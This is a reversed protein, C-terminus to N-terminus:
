RNIASNIRQVENEFLDRDGKSRNRVRTRYNYITTLSYRLFQAIKNSDTIGLRILAFIRLETNLTESKSILIQQDDKLLTNFDKIFDPHLTLFAKDFNVYLEKRENSAMDNSKLLKILADRNSKRAESLIKIQYNELNEIYNSCLQLFLALYKEQLINSNNLHDNVQKTELNSAQLEKNLQKLKSNIDTVTSNIKILGSKQRYIIFMSISLAISLTIVIWIFILQNNDRKRIFEKYAKSIVPLMRSIEVARLQANSDIADEMAVDIYRSSKEIEDSDYLVIALERLAIYEKVGNSIDSYASLALFVKHKERDKAEKYFLSLTYALYATERDTASYKSLEKLILEKAKNSRSELYLKEGSSIIHNINNEGTVEILSDRYSNQVRNKTSLTEGGNYAEKYRHLSGMNGYYSSLQQDTTLQPRLRIALDEAEKYRGKLIYGNLLQLNANVLQQPKDLITLIDVQLMAYHLASDCNFSKYNECLIDYLKARNEVDSARSLLEKIADIKKQHDEQFRDRNSISLDLENFIIESTLNKYDINELIHDAAVIASTMYLSIFISLMIKLRSQKIKIM